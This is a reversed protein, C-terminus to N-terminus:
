WTLRDSPDLLASRFRLEPSREWSLSFAACLNGRVVKRSVLLDDMVVLRRHRLAKSARAISMEAAITPM